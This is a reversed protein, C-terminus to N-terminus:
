RPPPVPDVGGVASHAPTAYVTAVEWMGPREVSPGFLVHFHADGHSYFWDEYRAGVPLKGVLAEGPGPPPNLEVRGISRADPKGLADRVQGQTMGPRIKNVTKTFQGGAGTPGGEGNDSHCGALALMIGVMMAALTTKM